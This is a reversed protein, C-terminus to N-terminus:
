AGGGRAGRAAELRAVLDRAAAEVRELESADAPVDRILASGIGFAVAGARVYDALDDAGIGGTPMIDVDHLPARIAKLYSVGLSGAPFLKVLRCGAAVAREIESPTMVGPLLLAERTNARELVPESLNPAVLFEAGAGLAADVDEPSRVTGAGVLTGAPLEARLRRIGELAHASNLTVEVIGVGGRRLARGLAVLDDPSHRGRTIAVLGAEAIRRALERRRENAM